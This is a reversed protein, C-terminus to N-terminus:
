CVETSVKGRCVAVLLAGRGAAITDKYAQLTTNFMHGSQRPELFVQKAGQLEEWLGTAQPM